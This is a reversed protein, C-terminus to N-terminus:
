LYFRNITVLLGKQM